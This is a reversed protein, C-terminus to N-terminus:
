CHNNGVIFDGNADIAVDVVSYTPLGTVIPTVSGDMGVIVLSGPTGTDSSSVVFETPSIREIGNPAPPAGKIAAGGTAVIAAQKGSSSVAIVGADLDAVMFDPEFITFNLNGSTNDVEDQGPVQVKADVRATYDGVFDTNTPDQLVWVLKIVIAAGPETARFLGSRLGGFADIKEVNSYSISAVIEGISTDDDVIQPGEVLPLPFRLVVPTELVLEAEHIFAIEGEDFSITLVATVIQGLAFDQASPILTIDLPDHAGQATETRPLGFLVLALAAFLVLSRAYNWSRRLLMLSRVPSIASM